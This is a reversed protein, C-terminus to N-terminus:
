IEKEKLTENREYVRYIFFYVYVLIVFIILGSNYMSLEINTILISTMISISVVIFNIVNFYKFSYGAYYMKGIVKKAYELLLLATIIFVEKKIGTGEIANTFLLLALFNIVFFIQITLSLLFYVINM